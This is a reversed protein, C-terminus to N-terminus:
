VEMLFIYNHEWFGVCLEGHWTSARVGPAAGTAWAQTVAMFRVLMGLFLEATSESNALGFDSAGLDACRAAFGAGAADPAADAGFRLPRTDDFLVSLPPMVPPQVNQLHFLAMLTLVHSNLSGSGADNIGQRRAWAKVQVRVARARVRAM